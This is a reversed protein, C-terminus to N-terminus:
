WSFLSVEPRAKKQTFQGTKSLAQVTEASKKFVGLQMLDSM